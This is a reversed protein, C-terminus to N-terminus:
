GVLSRLRDVVQCCGGVRKRLDDVMDLYQQVHGEVTDPHGVQEKPPVSGDLSLLGELECVSKDLGVLASGLSRIEPAVSVQAGSYEIQGLVGPKAGYGLAMM